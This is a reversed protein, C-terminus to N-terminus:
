TSSRSALITSFSRRTRPSLRYAAVRCGLRDGFGPRDFLIMRADFRDYSDEHPHRSYRSGPTGQFRLVPRGDPPGYESWALTRGDRLTM